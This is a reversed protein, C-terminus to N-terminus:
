QWDERGDSMMPDPLDFDSKSRTQIGKDVKASQESLFEKFGMIRRSKELTQDIKEFEENRTALNRGQSLIYQEMM